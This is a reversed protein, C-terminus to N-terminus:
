PARQSQEPFELKAPDYGLERARVKRMEIMDPSPRPTRTFLGEM